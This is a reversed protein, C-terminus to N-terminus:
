LSRTNSSRFLSIPTWHIYNTGASHRAASTSAGRNRTWAQNAAGWLSARRDSSRSALEGPGMRLSYEGAACAIEETLRLEFIRRLENSGSNGGTAVRGSDKNAHM